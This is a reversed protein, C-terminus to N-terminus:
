HGRKRQRAKSNKISKEIEEKEFSEKKVGPVSYETKMGKKKKIKTKKKVERSKQRVKLYQM